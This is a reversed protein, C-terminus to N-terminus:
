VDRLSYLDVILVKNFCTISHKSFASAAFTHGCSACDICETTPAKKSTKAEISEIPGLLLSNIQTWRYRINKLFPGKYNAAAALATALSAQEEALEKRNKELDLFDTRIGEITKLEELDL